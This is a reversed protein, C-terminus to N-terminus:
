FNEKNLGKNSESIEKYFKFETEEPINIKTLKRYRVFKMGFKDNLRDLTKDDILSIIEFSDKIETRTKYKM